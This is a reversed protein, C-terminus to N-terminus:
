PAPSAGARRNRYLVHGCAAGLVLEAVAAAILGTAPMGDLAISLLRSLGYALYVTAGILAAAFTLRRVFAGLTVLIGTALLAGGAARIESLLSSNGAFDIGNGAHFTDPTTLVAGGIGVVVLGAVVLIVKQSRSGTRTNIHPAEPVRGAVTTVAAM